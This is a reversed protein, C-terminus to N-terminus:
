IYKNFAVKHLLLTEIIKFVGRVINKETIIKTM